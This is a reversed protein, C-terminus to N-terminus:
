YKKNKQSPTATTYLRGASVSALQAHQPAGRLEPASGRRLAPLADAEAAGRPQGPHSGHGRADPRQGPGSCPVFLCVVDKLFTDM